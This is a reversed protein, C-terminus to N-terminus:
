NEIPLLHTIFLRKNFITNKFKIDIYLNKIHEVDAYM